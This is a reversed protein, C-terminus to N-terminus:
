TADKDAPFLDTESERWVPSTTATEVNFGYDYVLSGGIAAGFVTLAAGALSLALVPVPTAAADAYAHLRLAVTVIVVATVTSMVLAHANVTRWAQTRRPTSRLLDALGATIALLSVAAGGLLTFTGARYLDHALEGSTLVSIVDFAATLLYAGVPIDTLPPHLPKGAMGRLGHFERGRLTFAPRFSFLRM